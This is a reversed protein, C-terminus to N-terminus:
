PLRRAGADSPRRRSDERTERRDGDAMPAMVGDISVAISVTGEPVVTVARLAEEHLERNEEWRGHLAKPLRDLSAKSPEMNGVREFLEAKGPTMQTVM